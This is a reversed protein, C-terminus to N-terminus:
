ESGSSEDKLVAMVDETKVIENYRLHIHGSSCQYMILPKKGTIM